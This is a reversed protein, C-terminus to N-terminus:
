TQINGAHSGAVRSPTRHENIAEVARTTSGEVTGFVEAVMQRRVADYDCAHSKARIVADALEDGSSIRPGIDAYKWFRFGTNDPPYHPADLVVVDLGCAAAEFLTSSNDVAYVDAWRVVDAFDDIFGIGAAAFLPEARGAIRPHAHGRIDLHNWSRFHPAYYNLATRTQPTIRADWHFSVVVRLHGDRRSGGLHPRRQRRLWEVRPSGVIVSRGPYRAENAEHVRRNPSLFLVVRDRNRGGSYHPDGLGYNEGAGHEIFVAPRRTRKLDPYGAVILPEDSAMLGRTPTGPRRASPAVYFTGKDELADWVPRIHDYYHPQSAYADLM